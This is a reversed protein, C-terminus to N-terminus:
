KFGIEYTNIMLIIVFRYERLLADNNYRNWDVSRLIKILFCIYVALSRDYQSLFLRM